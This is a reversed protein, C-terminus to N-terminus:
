QQLEALAGDNLEKLQELIINRRDRYEDSEFAGPISDRLDRILDDMDQRLVRGQGPPLRLARPKHPEAFNHVYCWDDPVPQGAAHSELFKRVLSYKGTGEAGMVFLNYGRHHMGIAFRVSAVARPQGVVDDLPEVDDTTDFPFGATDCARYLAEPPLPQLPDHKQSM